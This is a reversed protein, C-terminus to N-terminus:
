AAAWGCPMLATASYPSMFVALVLPGPPAPGLVLVPVGSAAAAGGSDDGPLRGVVPRRLLLGSCLRLLMM